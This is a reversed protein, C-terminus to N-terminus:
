KQLEHKKECSSVVEELEKLKSDTKNDINQLKESIWGNKDKLEDLTTLVGELQNPKFKQLGHMGKVMDDMQKRAETKKRKQDNLKTNLEGMMEEISNAELNM